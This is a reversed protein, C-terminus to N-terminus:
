PSAGGMSSTTDDGPLPPDLANLLQRAETSGPYSELTRQLVNVAEDKRGVVVLLRAMEIALPEPPPENAKRAAEMGRFAWVLAGHADSLRAVRSRHQLLQMIEYYLRLDGSGAKLMREKIGQAVNLGQDLEKLAPLTAGVQQIRQQALNIAIGAQADAASLQGANAMANALLRHQAPTANAGAQEVARQAYAVAKDRDLLAEACRSLASYIRPERPNLEAAKELIPKALKYFQSELYLSGLIFHGEWDNGGERSEVWRTLPRIADRKRGKLILLRAQYYQARLNAPDQGLVFGLYTQVREFAENAEAQDTSREAMRLSALAKDLAENITAPPNERIEAPTPAGQETDAAGQGSAPVAAWVAITASVLMM